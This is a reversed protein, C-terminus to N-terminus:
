ANKDKGRRRAPARVADHQEPEDGLPALTGASIWGVEGTEVAQLAGSLRL